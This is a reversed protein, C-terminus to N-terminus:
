EKKDMSTSYYRLLTEYWEMSLTYYKSGGIICESYDSNYTSLYKNLNTTNYKDIEPIIDNEFTIDIYLYDDYYGYLTDVDNSWVYKFKGIPFVIVTTGWSRVDNKSKSTFLGEKRINWGFKKKSYKGMLDHLEKSVLRPKRDKRITNIEYNRSPMVGSSVGRLLLQKVGRLNSIFPKCDRNLTTKIDDWNATSMDETLYQKFRM